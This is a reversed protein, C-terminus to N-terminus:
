YVRFEGSGTRKLDKQAPQGTYAINGSGNIRGVIEKNSHVDANGSGNVTVNVSASRLCQAKLIGSGYVSCTFMDTNGNLAMNGSGSLVAEVNGSAVDLDINGSGDLMIKIDNTIAKKGTVSGSGKFKIENISAFPVKIIIKNGHSSKFLKGTQPSIALTNGSVETTIFPMLNKDGEITVSGAKGSVLRVEFPGNIDLKEFAEIDRVERTIMGNGITVDNAQATATLASFAVAFLLVVKKM